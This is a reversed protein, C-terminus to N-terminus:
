TESLRSSIWSPGNFPIAPVSISLGFRISFGGSRSRSANRNSCNLSGAYNRDCWSARRLFVSVATIFPACGHYIAGHRCRGTLWRRLPSLNLRRLQRLHGRLSVRWAARDAFHFTKTLEAITQEVEKALDRSHLAIVSTSCLQLLLM